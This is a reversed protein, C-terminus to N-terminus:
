KAVASIKGLDLSFLLEFLKHFSVLVKKQLLSLGLLSGQERTGNNLIELDQGISGILYIRSTQVVPANQIGHISLVLVVIRHM